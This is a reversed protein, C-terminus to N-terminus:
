ATLSLGFAVRCKPESQGFLFPLGSALFECTSLHHSVFAVGDCEGGMM